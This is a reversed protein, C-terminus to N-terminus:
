KVQNIEASMEVDDDGDKDNDGESGEYRSTVRNKEGSM